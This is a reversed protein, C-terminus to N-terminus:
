NAFALGAVGNKIRLINYNVAYLPFIADANTATNIKLSANDLRSFNCTGCPQHKNVKLAFSYMKVNAGETGLSGKLLDSAYDCHYYGQITRFYKDPMLDEFVDTGNLYIQVNSTSLTSPSGSTGVGPKVWFLAKVPHNLLNLDFRPATTNMDSYVKQVQEILLEHPTDVVMKREDTDLMIFEGYFTPSAPKGTSSFTVRIEVEHYQIAVLPLYTNDCFFFHLPIWTSSMLELMYDDDGTPTTDYAASAKAGSDVMFKNWVQVMYTSDQRDILQGGIYLEFVACDTSNPTIGVTSTGIDEAGLDLWVPGLLDGKQPIKVVIQGNAEAKGMYDLIVPKMAFNTHRKYSQRFFSVEPKGTIYADQVGKAVLDILAGSM